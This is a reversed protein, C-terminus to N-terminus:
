KTSKYRWIIVYLLSYTIIFHSGERQNARSLYIESSNRCLTWYVICMTTLWSFVLWFIFICVCVYSCVCGSTLYNNNRLLISSFFTFMSDTGLSLIRLCIWPLHFSNIMFQFNIDDINFDILLVIAMWTTLHYITCHRGVTTKTGMWTRTRTFFWDFKLKTQMKHMNVDCWVNM